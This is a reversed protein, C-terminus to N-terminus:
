FHQESRAIISDQLGKSLDVFYASYGAVRVLLDQHKEPHNQADILTERDVVNFQIQSIGLDGWSRLYSIFIDKMDDALASPLFKQNLLHNHTKVTDVKSASKLVATPGNQDMGFIPSLTADALPEGSRRGDPTAPVAAGAAYTASIGSGDGRCPYGFRNKFGMMVQTTKLQVEAMIRDAEEHDNGYKPANIMIQRIHEYGKWDANMATLLEDMTVTKDDFINKKIATISDAVNTPGLIVCFDAVPSPYGWKRCDLGKEICGDLLASYFPRPLYKEYLSRCTNEIKCLRNFFCGVQKLYADMVDDVSKFERPDPTKAGVQNGTLPHIGQHLAYWLAGPLVLGGYAKRAMNKGPIEMYVCGSIAYNRADKLPVDWEDLMPLISKDNFL